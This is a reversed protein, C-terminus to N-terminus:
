GPLAADAPAGAVEEPALHALVGIVMEAEPCPPPDGAPGGKVIEDLALTFTAYVSRPYEGHTARGNPREAWFEGLRRGYDAFSIRRNGRCKSAAHALALPLRGLQEALAAAEERDRDSKRGATDCLLRVAAEPTLVDLPVAADGAPNRSTVLL